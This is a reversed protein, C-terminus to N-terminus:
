TKLLKEQVLTIAMQNQQEISLNSNDIVIADAAKKLPNEIRNQDNFDRENINKRVDEKNVEIGKARLEKYRRDIRIEPLATLFIKLEADPFVVTGIDRGDMVVGKKKGLKQQLKVLKKRVDKLQSVKSVNESVQMGRIEEEVNKENLLTESKNTTSNFTFSVNINDLANPVKSIDIVGNKLINNQMFYLAVARYMAGTDIYIYNFKEAIVKALTSKGCSSHGDIAINIKKM